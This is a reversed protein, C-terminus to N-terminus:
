AADFQIDQKLFRIAQVSVSDPEGTTLFQATKGPGIMEPHRDLYDKLSKAVIKGQSFVRVDKGLATQFVEAMLPYHTCGLIAADPSPMRRLLAEVHSQVLAEALILDGDELADV